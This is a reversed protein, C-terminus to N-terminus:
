PPRHEPAQSGPGLTERDIALLLARLVHEQTTRLAPVDDASRRVIEGLLEDASWHNLGTLQTSPNTECALFLALGSEEEAAQSSHTQHTLHQPM